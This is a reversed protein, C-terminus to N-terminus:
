ESPEYEIPEAQYEGCWSDVDVAPFIQDADRMTFSEDEHYPFVQPPFRRCISSYNIEMRFRCTGCNETVGPHGRLGQM